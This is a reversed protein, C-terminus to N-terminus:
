LLSQQFGQSTTDEEVRTRATELYGDNADFGISRRGLRKAALSTTGSGVFPDLVLDGGRTSLAICRAPLELPFQAGHGDQGSATPMVWIDTVKDFEYTPHRGGLGKPLRRFASKDFYPTRQLALHIIQEAERTVRSSVTEPMSGEKKWTIIGKVWYGIRSARDAVRQPILCKEGDKLYSHGASYRRIQYDKWSRSDNGNMAQLTESANSRIQTRTNFSDMLNWWVSGDNAIKSKMMYLVEISHRIFGEPTQEYGFPCVEGDAWQVDVPEDYLRMGWYPTSTVVCNVSEEPLLPILDLASGEAFSWAQDVPLQRGSNAESHNQLLYAPIRSRPIFTESFADQDLLRLVAGLDVSNKNKSGLVNRIFTPQMGVLASVLELDFEESLDEPSFEKELESVSSRPHIDKIPM